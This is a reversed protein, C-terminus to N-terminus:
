VINVNGDKCGFVMSIFYRNGLFNNAMGLCLAYWFVLKRCQYPKGFLENGIMLGPGFAFIVMGGLIIWASPKLSRRTLSYNKHEDIFEHIRKRIKTEKIEQTIFSIVIAGIINFFLGWASSHITLPWKSM